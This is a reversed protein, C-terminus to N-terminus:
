KALSDKIKLDKELLILDDQGKSSSLLEIYTEKDKAIEQEGKMLRGGASIRFINFRIAKEVLDTVHLLNDKMEAIRNFTAVSHSNKYPGTKIFGQKIFEYLRPYIHEPKTDDSVPFGLLRAVKRQKEVSLVGLTTIAKAEEIDRKYQIEIELDENNVYFQTDSSFKGSEWDQWSSAITPHASLWYYTVASEPDDLNFINDEDRLKVPTVKFMAESRYNYYDSFPDLKIRLAKELREKEEPMNELGTRYSGDGQKYPMKTIGTGPLRNKGYTNALTAELSKEGAPYKKRIPSIKGIKGM